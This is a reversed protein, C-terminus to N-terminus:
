TKLVKMTEQVDSHEAIIDLDIGGQVTAYEMDGIYDRIFRLLSKYVAELCKKNRLWQSSGGSNKELESIASKSDLDEVLLWCYASIKDSTGELVYGADSQVGPWRM